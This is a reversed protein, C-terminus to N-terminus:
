VAKQLARIIGMYGQASASALQASFGQPEAEGEGPIEFINVGAQAQTDGEGQPVTVQQNEEAPGFDDGETGGLPEGFTDGAGFGNVLSGLGGGVGTLGAATDQGGFADSSAGGGFGSGGSSGGTRTAGYFSNLANDNGTVANRVISMVDIGASVDGISNQGTLMQGQFDVMVGTGTVGDVNGDNVGNFDQSGVLGKTDALSPDNIPDSLADGGAPGNVGTQPAPDNDEGGSSQQLNTGDSTPEPAPEAVTLTTAQQTSNGDGDNAVVNITRDGLTAVGNAATNGYQIGRLVTQYVSASAAGTISLVGTGQTYAVTLGANTAATTAASDLSLTEVGDGDPRTTLTATLSEVDDGSDIDSLTASSAAITVGNGGATFSVSHGSGGSSGNLDVTPVDNVGTSDINFTGLAVNGSGEGDNITVSVTTVDGGAVNSATTYQINSATNLYTDINSVTGTLTLTSGGAGSVTVSGGSSASLTGAGATLTLSVNGTTDVDDLTMGSLDVNSATDETVSVDTPFTGGNTPADNVGSVNVTASASAGTNSNVDRGSFTITRATENPAESTNNFTIERILAQYDAATASGSLTIQSDSDESITIGNVVDGDSRSGVKLIDGTQANTLAIVFQNLNDGDPETVTASGAIVTAGGGESFSITVSTGSTAGNLDTVPATVVSITSSVSTSNGDGDNAVVNVTRDGTTIDAAADTNNYEIGRLITQYVSASASGTISLVGTGETYSVTLGANSAATTAASNLALSEVSDGDPRSTLTATLTEINDGSDLETLSADSDGITVTDGGASFSTSFDSGGGSADLDVVPVDNTGTIDVNFTGLAVDGSGEGDNITVAVTTANDGEANNASVYQINSATNLFTDINAIPGTLTLTATGDGGVTVGGGSSSNLTGAAATLTLVVNGTTDIDGLTLGSLDVDSASDETVTIDSPFTGTQTPDDNVNTIDINITPDSSLSLSGDSASVTITAQDNGQANSVGTYQINSATDLYTNIDAASGVLTITTSNVLTETVGSGVGSGDAPTSFTGASATLTVTLSDGDVDAFSVASLDVNSATDETVTVDSPTGSVTPRDNVATSDINVTGLAVDGSGEGDNIKVAVTTVDNGAANSATTYQINSATNLFTDINSVSGTLTLTSTGSGGVTVSGGSSSALTGAAATLTVTVNGTTDIDAVTLGSLDFDSAVDETVTIDSPFTGTQTPDDNVNTIDINITPDSALSLSGDSASVTITAQDNGQANSVGTYKINSATDLYTNIDAASGVLTITTANVLTETVGSGVGSGDAPTSFTGASATLTVTLSDGDVDAFSMASLDVNSATDETVTVDSPAGSLTPRDNVNTVDVNIVPDSSLSGGNEDTTSVTITAQDNGQVNSAATYQINSATDLYTNIDAASGALTITTSNVLTETVGSGVGSGDAPTSFTGASATLTVTLSDDDNDDFTMASLDVDSATDETVTVDSPAGSVTPDENAISFVLDDLTLVIQSGADSTITLSTVGTLSSLDVSAGSSKDVSETVNAGGNATFTWNATVLAAADAARVSTLDVATDFSLTMSSTYAGGTDAILVNGTTGYAGGVNLVGVGAGASSTVTLKVSSVTTTVNSGNDTVSTFNYTALDHAYQALGTGTVAIDAEITGVSSELDWDGSAGTADESAAVDAQTVEALAEIFGQGQAGAAIDCGMLLLDGDARLSQGIRTLSDQFRSLNDTNLTGGSLQLEGAGGHSFIQLSHLNEYGAVLDAIEEISAGSDLYIVDADDMAGAGLAQADVVNADFLILNKPADPEAGQEGAADAQQAVDQAATQEAVENATVAGAADFMFRPELAFALKKQTVSRDGQM